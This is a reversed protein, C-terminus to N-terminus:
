GQFKTSGRDLTFWRTMPTHSGIHIAKVPVKYVNIIVSILRTM